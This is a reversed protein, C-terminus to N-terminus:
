HASQSGCSIESKEGIGDWGLTDKGWGVEAGLSRTRSGWGSLTVLSRTIRGLGGRHHGEVKSKHAGEELEGTWNPKAGRRVKARFQFGNLAM